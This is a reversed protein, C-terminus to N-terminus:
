RTEGALRLRVVEVTALDDRESLRYALHQGAFGELRIPLRTSVIRRGDRTDIVDVVSDYLSDLTAATVDIGEGVRVRNRELDKDPVNLLVWLRGAGDDFVGQLV